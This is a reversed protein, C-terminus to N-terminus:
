QGAIWVDDAMYARERCSVWAQFPNALSRIFASTSAACAWHLGLLSLPPEQSPPCSPTSLHSTLQVWDMEVDFDRVTLMIECMGTPSTADKEIAKVVAGKQLSAEPLTHACSLATRPGYFFGMGSLVQKETRKRKTKSALAPEDVFILFSCNEALQRAEPSVVPHDLRQEILKQRRALEEFGPLQMAPVTPMVLDLLSQIWRPVWGPLTLLPTHVGAGSGSAGSTRGVIVDVVARNLVSAILSEATARELRLKSTYKGDQLRRFDEDELEQLVENGWVRAVLDKLNAVDAAIMNGLRELATHPHVTYLTIHPQVWSTKHLQLKAMVMPNSCIPLTVILGQVLISLTPEM